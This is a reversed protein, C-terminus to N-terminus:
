KGKFLPERKELFADMGEYHDETAFALGFYAAELQLGSEIDVEAGQNIVKKVFSVALPAKEALLQALEKAKPLLQKSSLVQYVIGLRRAEEASVMEGTMCLYKAAQKGILRALRQTGGYGPIVGLNVEPQGFKANESALIIDGSLALELGGGLAFGNVAMIVPIDLGEIRSFLAQGRKAKEEAQHPQDIERLEKIDAGAVFAKEGAGTIILARIDKKQEISAVAEELENLLEQNLANLVKPRSITLVATSEEIEVNIYKWDSM